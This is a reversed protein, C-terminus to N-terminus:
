KLLEAIVTAANDVREMDLFGNGANMRLVDLPVAEYFERVAQKLATVKAAEIALTVRAYLLQRNSKELENSLNRVRIKLNKITSTNM